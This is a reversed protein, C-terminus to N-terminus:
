LEAFHGGKEMLEQPPGIEVIEGKDMVIIRDSNKVTDPRHAITLVTCDSFESRILKQIRQDMELDVEATAEDLILIKRKRLLARCMLRMMWGSKSWREDYEKQEELWEAESAKQTSDYSDPDRKANPKYPTQVLNTVDCKILTAWMDELTFEDLPDLNDAFSGNFITSEQPIIGLRPRLDGVGFRSIDEGDILISGESTGHVLRFLAKVLTSKGAGTRGVIGIKEGPRITLNINNLVPDLDKHYRMTYNRFEIAGSQPWQESPRCGEVVYPAEPAIDTFSRYDSIKGSFEEIRKRISIANATM